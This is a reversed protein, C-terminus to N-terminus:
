CNPIYNYVENVIDINCKNRQNSGVTELPISRYATVCNSINFNSLTQEYLNQIKTAYYGYVFSDLHNSYYIDRIKKGPIRLQTRAGSADIQKRFKRTIIERHIFPSFAHSAVAEINSVYREIWRRDAFSFPLGIHPYPKLKFWEKRM